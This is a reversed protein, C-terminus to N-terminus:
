GGSRSSLTTSAPCACLSRRVDLVMEVAHRDDHERADAPDPLHESRELVNVQVLEELSAAKGLRPRYQHGVIKQDWERDAPEEDHPM